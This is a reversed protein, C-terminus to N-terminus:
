LPGWLGPSTTMYPSAASAPTFHLGVQPSTPYIIRPHNAVAPANGLTLGYSSVLDIEPSTRGITPWYAVLSQPRVFLPSYGRALVAVEADTLVASWGAVEALAGYLHNALAPNVYQLAGLVTNDLGGPTGTTPTQTGKSGGNLYVAINRSSDIVGCAHHWTDASYGTTTNAEKFDGGAAYSFMGVYDGALHGNLHLGYANASSQDGQSWLYSDTTVNYSYFWVSVTFPHGLLPAAYRLYQTGDFNRAM